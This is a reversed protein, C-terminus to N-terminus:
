KPVLEVARDTIEVKTGTESAIRQLADWVSVNKLRLEKIRPSGTAPAGGLIRGAEKKIEAEVEPSSKPKPKRTVFSVGRKAHDADPDLERSRLRLFDIAEELSTDEFDIVPIIIEKLKAEVSSRARGELKPRPHAALRSTQPAAAEGSSPAVPTVKPLSPSTGCSSGWFALVSLLPGFAIFLFARSKMPPICDRSRAPTFGLNLEIKGQSL